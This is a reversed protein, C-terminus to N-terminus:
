LVKMEEEFGLGSGGGGGREGGGGVDDGNRRNARKDKRRGWWAQTIDMVARSFSRYLMKGEMTGSVVSFIFICVISVALVIGFWTWFEAVTFEQDNFQCSFYAAMISVPMFLLTAKALLLTVRTLREVSLSEKIAILNFNMMVLSEKQSLCEEIESIAYLRTRYKLRKFRARAASSLAVGLMSVDEDIRHANSSACYSGDDLMSSNGEDLPSLIHSNKLSALTTEQKELVRDIIVEYSQYMRKLVSLQRGIRHLREVHVLEAKQMMDARLRDLAAAYKHERRAVLSYTSYWDDFLNYFLLGPADSPRHAREEESDGIRRRIPLVAIAASRSIDFCKSLNRFVNLLNRRISYLTALEERDYFGHKEPYPDEHINLVTKDECLVLWSWVRKGEPLDGRETDIPKNDLPKSPDKSGSTSHLSNYGLSVYRRGEDVTSWHWVEDILRYHSIMKSLDDDFTGDSINIGSQGGPDIGSTFSNAVSNPTNRTRQMPHRFKREWLSSSHKSDPHRSANPFPESKMIGYLRPSFDYHKALTGIIDKQKYPVWINIWRGYLNSPRPRSLLAKLADDSLDFACWAHDDGFDVFFNRSTPLLVEAQLRHFERPDDLDRIKHLLEENDLSRYFSPLHRQPEAGPLQLHNSNEAM